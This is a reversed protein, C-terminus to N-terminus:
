ISWRVFASENQYFLRTTWESASVDNRKEEPEVEKKRKQRKYLLGFILCCLGLLAAAGAAAIGAIEEALLWFLVNYVNFEIVLIM